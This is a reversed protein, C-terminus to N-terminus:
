GKYYPRYASYSYKGKYCRARSYYRNYYRRKSYYRKRRGRKYYGGGGSVADLEEDSISLAQLPAEVAPVDERVRFLKKLNM